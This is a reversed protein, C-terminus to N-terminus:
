RTNRAARDSEGLHTALLARKRSPISKTWCPHYFARAARTSTAAAANFSGSAISACVGEHGRRLDRFVSGPVEIHPHREGPANVGVGIVFPYPYCLSIISSAPGASVIALFCQTRLGTARHCRYQLIKPEPNNFPQCCSRVRLRSRRAVRPAAFPRGDSERLFTGTTM